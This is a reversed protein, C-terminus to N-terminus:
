MTLENFLVYESFSDEGESSGYSDDEDEDDDFEGFHDNNLEDLQPLTSPRDFANQPSSGQLRRPGSSSDGRDFLDAVESRWDGDLLFFFAFNAWLSKIQHCTHRTQFCSIVIFPLLYPPTEHSALPSIGSM